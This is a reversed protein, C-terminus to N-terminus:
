RSCGGQYCHKGASFSYAALDFRYICQFTYPENCFVCKNFFLDHFGLVFENPANAEAWKPLTSYRYIQEKVKVSISGYDLNSFHFLCQVVHVEIFRFDSLCNEYIMFTNEPMFKTSSSIAPYEEAISDSMFVLFNLHPNQEM